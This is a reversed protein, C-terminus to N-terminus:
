RTATQQNKAAPAQYPKLSECLTKAERVTDMSNLGASLYCEYTKGEVTRFSYYGIKKELQKDAPSRAGRPLSGMRSMANARPKESAVAKERAYRLHVPL